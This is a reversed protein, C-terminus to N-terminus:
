CRMIRSYCDYYDHVLHASCPRFIHLMRCNYYYFRIASRSHARSLLLLLSGHAEAGSPEFGYYIPNFLLVVIKRANGDLTHVLIIATGQMPCFVVVVVTMMMTVTTGHEM